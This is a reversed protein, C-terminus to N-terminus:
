TPYRGCHNFDKNSCDPRGRTEKCRNTSRIEWDECWPAPSPCNAPDSPFVGEFNRATVQRACRPDWCTQGEVLNGRKLPENQNMLDSFSQPTMAFVCDDAFLPVYPHGPWSSIRGDDGAIRRLICRKRCCRRDSLCWGLARCTIGASLATAPSWRREQGCIGQLDGAPFPLFRNSM